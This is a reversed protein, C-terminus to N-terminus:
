FLKTKMAEILNIIENKNKTLYEYAKTGASNGISAKLQNITNEDINNLWTEFDAIDAFITAFKEIAKGGLSPIPIM